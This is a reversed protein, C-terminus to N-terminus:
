LFFTPILLVASALVALLLWVAALVIVWIWRKRNPVKKVTSMIIGFIMLAIPLLYLFPSAFVLFLLISVTAELPEIEEAIINPSYYELQDIVENIANEDQQDLVLVPVTGQRFSLNGNADFYSNDLSDYDVFLYTGNDDFVAGVVHAFTVTEDYGIIEYYDMQGLETAEKSYGNMVFADLDWHIDWDQVLNYSIPASMSYGDTLHYQSYNGTRYDKLSAAGQATVYVRYDAGSGFYNYVVAIDYNVTVQGEIVHAPHGVTSLYPDDTEIDQSYSYLDYPRFWDYPYLDYRTYVLDGYFLTSQDDSVIWDPTEETEVTSEASAMLPLSLMLSICLLIAYLKKIYKM